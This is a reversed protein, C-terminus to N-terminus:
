YEKKLREAIALIVRRLSERSNFNGIIERLEEPSRSRMERAMKSIEPLARTVNDVVPIDCTRATRSLPNLDVAIVLKGMASLAETRDGDELLVLVTDASFIGDSSCGGRDHDIGPILSNKDRGLVKAAGAEELFSALKEVREDSSHFLNVEIMAGVEAALEVTEGPALVTSNGNVSIVPSGSLLLAAAAARAQERAEPITKEGLLYDFAEGRGHAALGAPAVLGDRIGQAIRERLKLSLHRPHSEPIDM